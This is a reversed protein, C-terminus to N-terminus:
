QQQLYMETHAYSLYKLQLPIHQLLCHERIKPTCSIYTCVHVLLTGVCTKLTM